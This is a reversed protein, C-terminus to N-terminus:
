DRDRNDASEQGRRAPTSGVPLVLAMPGLLLTVGLLFLHLNVAGTLAAEASVGFPLLAAVAALEYSGSGAIGHFPLVSSLEAGLVGILLRWLELPLFHSLVLAFAIFKATWSLATWLYLRLALLRSTPAAEAIGRALRGVIGWGSRPLHRAASPVLPMLGVWLAGGILWLVSPERLHLVLFGVLVLFHLDLLRIWVLSALAGGFGLGFYRQMLWPFVMEGARMPLLNNAVNHLISLRLVVIFRGGLRHRYFDYVRVARFLYSLLSLAVAALVLAPALTRWPALLRTWGVTQDVAVLLGALITGGILWDRRRGLM